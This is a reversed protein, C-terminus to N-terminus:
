HKLNKSVREVEVYTDIEKFGSNAGSIINPANYFLRFLYFAYIIGTLVVDGYQKYPKYWNLDIVAVNMEDTYKTAGLNLHLVPANGLNNIIDMFSNIAIKISEVFDFKSMVTNQLATIRDESPIFLTNLLDGLLEIIKKGLFNDDFPNIYSIINVLFEWLKKLIFNDSFPNLWDFLDKLFFDSSFPNLINFLGKLIFNDSLPNIYSLINSVDKFFNTFIFKEGTPDFINLISSIDNFMKSFIFDESLPNLYKTLM